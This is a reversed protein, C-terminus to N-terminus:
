PPTQASPLRVKQGPRLAQAGATVVIDGDGLGAAIQVKTENSGRVQVPRAVVTGTKKDFLWVAPGGETRVLAAAPIEIGPASALKVRGTVTNGLRMSPPADILRVRVEFTGTVPDARPAVERVKGAARASPDSVLSVEIDANRLTNDKIQEPVDFVADRSGERAVQVVMRGASVVEGPEPGRATVVGAATALLRTYSLRNEALNLNARSAEVQSEATQLLAVAQDFSARSVANEAVLDRMRTHNNRAEILQAQSAVLQARAALLSSEENQPDLRALLQGPVVADGVEVAREVLRGDIRFSENTETQAQVTGTLAVVDGVSRTEITIARVPRVDPAPAEASQRCGTIAALSALLICSVAPLRSRSNWSSKSSV